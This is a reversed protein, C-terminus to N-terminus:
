CHSSTQILSHGIERTLRRAMAPERIQISTSFEGIESYFNSVQLCIAPNEPELEMLVEAARRGLLENKYAKCSRLFSSWMMSDGRPAKKLLEEAEDILGARGLLDVMCSYHQRDPCIGYLTKMSDFLMKGEKVLGSHNCGTLVCLFTVKDPKLGKQIMAQFLRLSESGMGNQAYGNIISTFCIVNPSPLEEFVMRSYRVQGCKSYADILSCSVAIDSELGLKVACSHVVKFSALSTLASVSLAKLTTSLTVEDLGICEDAMLGFLEVVDGICGCYLLSTMLSNCCELTKEEVSEYIAVSREIDGCKGYMNILASQIHISGCDFGLKVAFSHIQKGLGVNKTGSALNLLGVLSRISPRNGWYQMGSFVQLADILLGHNAYVWVVSNWSIVDKSPIYEFARRADILSECASYLDVLANAVFVNLQVCGLKIAHCHLQKGEDFSGGNCCGRILYCLTLGNSELGAGKMRSYLEFMKEVPGVECLGRLVVNWTALNREPLEDFMKLGVNELRVRMYINILSSRVFLNSGFGLLVVRCHVQTGEGYLGADACIGLVSSFTSASERIGQSVIKAYFQFGEKRLGYQRYGSILLNCSVVDYLPMEDFLKLASGLDGSKIFNDIGRNKSFVNDNDNDQCYSELSLSSTALARSTDYKLVFTTKRRVLSLVKLSRGVWTGNQALISM